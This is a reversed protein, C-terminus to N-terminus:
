LNTLAITTPDVNARHYTDEIQRMQTKVSSVDLSGTFAIKADKAAEYVHDHQTDTGVLIDGPLTLTENFNKEIPAPYNVSLAIISPNNVSAGSPIQKGNWKLDFNIVNWSVNNTATATLGGSVEGTIEYDTGGVADADFKAAPVRVKM